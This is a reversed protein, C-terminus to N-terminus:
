APAPIPVRVRKAPELAFDFHLDAREGRVEIGMDVLGRVPLHSRESIYLVVRTDEFAESVDPLSAGGEPLSGLEGLVGEFVGGTDVVGTIKSTPEGEILVGQAVSVDEIYPALNFGQLASAQAQGPPVPMATWSGGAKMWTRDGRTVVTTEPFGPIGDARMTVYSAGGPKTSGGGRMVLTLELGDAEVWMRGAFRFAELKEMAAESQRLLEQARQAEAGSCGALALAALLAVFAVGTRRM